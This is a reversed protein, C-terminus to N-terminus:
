LDNDDMLVEGFFNAGVDVCPVADLHFSSITSGVSRYATSLIEGHLNTAHQALDMGVNDFVHGELEEESSGKPM